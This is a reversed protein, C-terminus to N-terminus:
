NTTTGTGPRGNPEPNELTVQTIKRIKFRMHIRSCMGGASAVNPIRFDIGLKEPPQSSCRSRIKLEMKM